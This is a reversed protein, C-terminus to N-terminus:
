CERLLRFVQLEGIDAPRGPTRYTNAIAKPNEYILEGLNYCRTVGFNRAETKPGTHFLFPEKDTPVDAPDLYISRPFYVSSPRGGALLGANRPLIDDLRKYDRYYAVYKEYFEYKQQLRLSVPFFQLAYYTQVGLWPLLLLGATVIMFSKACALNQVQSSAVLGFLIVLGYQLGGLFRFDFPLLFYVLLLQLGLLFAMVLRTITKIGKVAFFGLSGIWIMPSYGFVTSKIVNLPDVARGAKFIERISEVNYVSKGFVGSLIPGFPSGSKWFTWLMLPLSLVLWPVFIGFIARWREHRSASRTVLFLGTLFLITTGLPLLTIKSSVSSLVLISFITGFTISGMKKLLDERISFAVISAATALDGMAHSGGTVHYVVPYIGIVMSVVWVYAWAKVQGRENVLYWGFWVLTLSLAWSVVNAADPFGLAHLPATSIQFIMQPLISGPWPERYFHLGGDVVIRAPLLMHYYLEDIKTSPAIAVLLNVSLAVIGVILPLIGESQTERGPIPRLPRSFRFSGIGGVAILVFWLGILVPPFALNSVAVVQVALSFVQIGLLVGVVQRWPSPIDLRFLRLLILGLGLLGSFTTIGMLLVLIPSYYEIALFSTM